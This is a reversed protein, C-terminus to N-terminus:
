PASLTFTVTQTYNGSDYTWSNTMRFTVFGIRLPNANGTGEAVIQAVTRNLTGNRFPPAPTATWRVNSIDIRSAGSTLDGAAVVTLQWARNGPLGRIRYTVIMPAATVEPTTDPDGLTFNVTAPVISMELRTNQAAGPAACGLLAVLAIM